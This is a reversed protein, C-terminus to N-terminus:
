RYGKIMMTAGRFNYLIIILLLFILSPFGFIPDGAVGDKCTIHRSGAMNQVLIVEFPM